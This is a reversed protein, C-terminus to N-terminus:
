LRLQYRMMPLHDPMTVQETIGFGQKIFFERIPLDQVYERAWLLSANLVNADRLLQVYISEGVPGQMNDPSCVVYIRLVHPDEGQQELAGYGVVIGDDDAIYHHRLRRSDDFAKRQDLWVQNGRRDFPVAQNALALLSDFDKSHFPRVLLM